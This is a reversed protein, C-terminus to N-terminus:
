QATCQVLDSSRCGSLSGACANLTAMPCGAESQLGSGAPICQLLRQGFVPWVEPSCPSDSIHQTIYSKSRRKNTAGCWSLM